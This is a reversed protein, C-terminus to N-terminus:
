IGSHDRGVDEPLNIFSQSAIIIIIKEGPKQSLTEHVGPWGAASSRIMRDGVEQPKHAASSGGPKM